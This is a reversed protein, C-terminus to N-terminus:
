DLDPVIRVVSTVGRAGSQGSDSEGDESEAAESDESDGTSAESEFEGSSVSADEEEEVYDEEEDDDADEEDEDADANADADGDVDDEADSEADSDKQRKKAGRKGTKRARAPRKATAAGAKLAGKKVKAAEKNRTVGLLLASPAPRQASRLRQVCPTWTELKLSSPRGDVAALWVCPGLMCDLPSPLPAAGCNEAVWARWAEVSPLAPILPFVNLTDAGMTLQLVRAGYTYARGQVEFTEGLVRVSEEVGRGKICRVGSLVQM